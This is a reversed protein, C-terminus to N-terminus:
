EASFPEVTLDRIMRYHKANGTLLPAGHAVAIAAILADALRISHSLFHQEVYFMARTSIAEDIMLIGTGWEALTARLTRLEGKSRMGQVLEIYVVVPIDFSKLSDLVDAAQANGRLYWILVDTDVLM